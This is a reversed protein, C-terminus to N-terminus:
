NVKLQEFAKIYDYQLDEHLSALSKEIKRIQNAFLNTLATSKKIPIGYGM